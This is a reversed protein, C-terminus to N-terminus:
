FSYGPNQEVVGGSVDIEQQPIPFVFSIATITPISTGAYEPENAMNTNMIALAEDQPMRKLDLWRQGEFALERRRELSLKETFTGTSSADIDVAPDAIAPDGGFARRRVMNIMEYSAASEGDAEAKMLLVDAYRLLVLNIDSGDSAAELDIFKSIYYDANGGSYATFSAAARTDGEEFIGAFDHTAFLNLLGGTGGAQIGLRLAESSPIFTNNITLGTQNSPNFNVEFISEDTNDNGAAYISAYDPLLQFKGIVNQLASSAASANGRQLEVKGLLTYAALRTARGVENLDGGNYSDPLVDIADNLDNVIFDYSDDLSSRAVIANDFDTTPESRLIMGGHMNVLSFYTLARLFKAEGIARLVLADETSNETPVGPARAIVTNANNIVVFHSTWSSTLLLNGPTEEFTDTEVREKQDEQNQAANDSRGEWIRYYSVNNQLSRQTSYVGNLGYYLEDVNSFFATADITDEPAVDIFNDCSSFILV